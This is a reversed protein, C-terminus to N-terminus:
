SGAAVKKLAETAVPVAIKEAVKLGWAGATRLHRLATAGDGEVAAKEAAAVAGLAEDQESSGHSEARMADRLQRLEEALRPLELDGQNWLQQFSMDHSHAGPGVAGAQGVIYTDRSSVNIGRVEPRFLTLQTPTNRETLRDIVSVLAAAARHRRRGLIPAYEEEGREDASLESLLYQCAEEHEKSNCVLFDFLRGAARRGPRAIHWDIATNILERDNTTMIGDYTGFKTTLAIALGLEASTDDERQIQEELFSRNANWSREDKTLARYAWKRVRPDEWHRIQAVRDSVLVPRLRSSKIAWFSYESIRPDSFAVGEEYLFGKLWEAHVREEFTLQRRGFALLLFRVDEIEADDSLLPERISAIKARGERLVSEMADFMMSVSRGLQRSEESIRTPDALANRDQSRSFRTGLACLRTALCGWVVLHKDRETLVKSWLELILM